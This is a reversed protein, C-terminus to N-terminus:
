VGHFLGCEKVWLVEDPMALGAGAGSNDISIM